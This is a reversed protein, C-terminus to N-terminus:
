FRRFCTITLEFSHAILSLRHRLGSCYTPETFNVFRELCMPNSGSRRWLGAGSWGRRSRDRNKRARFVWASILCCRGACISNPHNTVESHGCLVVALSDSERSASAQGYLLTPLFSKLNYFIYPKRESNPFCFWLVGERVTTPILNDSRSLLNVKVCIQVRGNNFEMEKSTFM